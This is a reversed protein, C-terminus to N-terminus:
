STENLEGKIKTNQGLFPLEMLYLIFVLYALLIISLNIGFIFKLSLSLDFYYNSYINIYIDITNVIM